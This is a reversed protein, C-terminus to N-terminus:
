IEPIKILLQVVSPYWSGAPQEKTRVFEESALYHGMMETQQDTTLNTQRDYNIYNEM